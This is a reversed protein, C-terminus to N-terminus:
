VFLVLLVQNVSASSDMSWISVTLETRVLHHYASTSIPKVFPELTDRQANVSVAEALSSSVPQAMFALTQTVHVMVPCFKVVIEERSVLAAFVSTIVLLIEVIAMNARTRFANTSASSATLEKFALLACVSTAVSLARVYVVTLAPTAKVTIKLLVVTKELLDRQVNVCTITLRTWVHVTTRASDLVTM